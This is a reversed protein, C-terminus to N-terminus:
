SQLKLENLSALNEERNFVSWARLAKKRQMPAEGLDCLYLFREKGSIQIMLKLIQILYEM